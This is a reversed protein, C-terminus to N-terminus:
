GARKQSRLYGLALFVWAVSVFAGGAFLASYGLLTAVIGSVLGGPTKGVVELAALVSFHTASMRQDVGAMMCAFMATTLVGGFFHEAITVWIVRGASLAESNSGVSAALWWTLILPVARFAGAVVLSRRLGVWRTLEGGLVSGLLSAVLGYTGVWAGIDSAAVGHDVLFPKFMADIASEGLKYTLVLVAFFIADPQAFVQKAWWAMARFTLAQKGDKSSHESSPEKVLWTLSMPGLMLVAMAVFLWSWGWKSTLWVLLGGGTLMGLKYGVVQAANARGLGRGSILRIALGDVAIDQTAAALNMLFVLLLLVPLADAQSAAASALCLGSLVLQLPIIWSRYHGLPGASFRDVLPAWLAKAMWPLALLSLFGITELSGGNQRVYVPLATAQFGFPLGQAFYLGVLAVLELWGRRVPPSALDSSSAIAM